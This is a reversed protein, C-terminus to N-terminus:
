KVSVLAVVAGWEAESLSERPLLYTEGAPPLPVRVTGFLDELGACPMLPLGACAAALQRGLGTEVKLRLAPPLGLTHVELGAPRLRLEIEGPLM